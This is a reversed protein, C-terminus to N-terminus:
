DTLILVRGEAMFGLNKGKLAAADAVSIVVDPGDAGVAVISIPKDGIRAGNAKKAADLDKAYMASGGLRRAAENLMAPGYVEAGSADLVRPALAKVLKRGRADVVLCTGAPEGTAAPAAKADAKPLLTDSLVGEMPVEVDLEVGGDEFYRKDLVKYGKVIGQVTGALAKDTGLAGAVTQGQTITIGKITEMCSRVADLKAAKEAGIRAVAPNGQADRLNAAGAGTCKVVKKQWDVAGPEAHAFVPLLTAALAIAFATRM